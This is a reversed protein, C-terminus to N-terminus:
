NGEGADPATTPIAIPDPQMEALAEVKLALYEIAAEVGQEVIIKRIGEAKM